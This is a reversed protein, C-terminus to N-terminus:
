RSPACPSGARSPRGGPYTILYADPALEFLGLYQQRDAGLEDVRAKLERWAAQLEDM